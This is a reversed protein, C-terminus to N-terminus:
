SQRRAAPWRQLRVVLTAVSRLMHLVVGPRPHLRWSSRLLALSQRADASRSLRAHTQLADALARRRVGAPVAAVGQHKEYFRVNQESVHLTRSMASGAHKSYLCTEERIPAFRAGALACRLWFDRDEGVSFGPDFRGVRVAFRRDIAVSSCTVIASRGFLVSVPACSLEPAAPVRGLSRGTALDVAEVGSVAVEAGARLARAANSLHDPTWTDDADLFACAQGTALEMLRNRAAAVGCNWRFSEYRVPQRCASAFERVIEETGDCSGDEVVILEWDAHNQGRVGALAKRIFPAAKYAAILVSIKM